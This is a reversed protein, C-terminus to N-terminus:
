RQVADLILGAILAAILWLAPDERVMDFLSPARYDRLDNPLNM